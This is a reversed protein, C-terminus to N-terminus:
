PRKPTATKTDRRAGEGFQGWGGAAPMEVIILQYYPKINIIIVANGM